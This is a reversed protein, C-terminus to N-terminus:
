GYHQKVLLALDRAEWFQGSGQCSEAGLLQLPAYTHLLVQVEEVEDEQLLARNSGLRKDLLGAIGIERYARCWEMLSTRNCGTIEEIEAVAYGVAYLRVSQYRARIPGDKGHREAM